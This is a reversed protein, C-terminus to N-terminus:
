IDIMIISFFIIIFIWAFIIWCIAMINGLWGSISRHKKTFDLYVAYMSIFIALMAFILYGMEQFSISIIVMLIYLGMGTYFLADYRDPMLGYYEADDGTKITMPHQMPAKVEPRYEGCQKCYWQGKQSIFILRFKCKRCHHTEGDKMLGGKSNDHDM